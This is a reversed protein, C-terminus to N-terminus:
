ISSNSAHLISIGIHAISLGQGKGVQVKGDGQYYSRILLNALDVTIHHMVSIDSYWTQDNFLSHVAVVVYAKLHSGDKIHM